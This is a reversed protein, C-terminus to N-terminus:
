SKEELFLRTVAYEERSILPRLAELMVLAGNREIKGNRYVYAVCAGPTLCPINAAELKRLFRQDDSAIADYGGRKFLAATESEGNVASVTPPRQRPAKAIRLKGAGINERILWADQYGKGQADDVTEKKVLPTIHVTMAAIVAEKAGAKALKVLCDSDM